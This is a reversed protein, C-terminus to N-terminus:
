TNVILKRPFKAGKFCHGGLAHAVHLDGLRKSHRQRCGLPPQLPQVRLALHHRPVKPSWAARLSTQTEHTKRRLDRLNCTIQANKKKAAPVTIFDPAHEHRMASRRRPQLRATGYLRWQECVEAPIQCRARSCAAGGPTTCMSAEAAQRPSSAAHPSWECVNGVRHENRTNTVGDRLIAPVVSGRADHSPSM